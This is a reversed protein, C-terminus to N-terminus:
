RVEFDVSRSDGAENVVTLRHSGSSPAISMQHHEVTEGIYEEDLHWFHRLMKKRSAVKCVIQQTEGGFGKPLVVQQGSEPYLFEIDRGDSEMCDARYPPLPKYGVNHRQYYYEMAPTLVFWSKTVQNAVPECESNVQWREDPSLHVVRCFRCKGSNVCERPLMMTDRELCADTARWGSHRCVVVEDMDEYPKRFWETQPLSSFVEFMVPGAYGIGTMDARGEGTSNGVWVGVAYDRTVGIAWADRNGFSTGTKWAVKKMSSFQQWDAEEEPRNLGTMAEFAYWIGAASPKGRLKNAEVNEGQLIRLPHVDDESYKNEKGYEILRRAMSAYMGTMDWLTGEAGGLIISAGYYDENKRLTTMGVARLNDMFRVVHHQSLMRVLPVNLSQMIARDAGVAGSYTKSYNKPTYGNIELPTDAIISRPNLEGDTMMAAYLIPKLVSGTSREAQIMDVMYCDAQSDRTNGVYAVVNGTSVEAVIVAINHIHNSRNQWSHYEVISQVRRQLEVDITTRYKAEGYRKQLYDCLHPADRAISHIEEPLPEEISMEYTTRDIEGTEYLRKLLRDRKAKLRERNRSVHILAPSNPLIALTASESWTLDKIPVGFFKLAAAELGVINGGMPAESAYQRLIERKSYRMEIGLAVYAEYMKQWITREKNGLAIRALQMTITSAGQVNEGGQVNSRMARVIAVPDIGIHYWFRRDEFELLCRIYKEPVTDPAALRLQGGKAIRASLLTGDSAYVAISRPRDLLPNPVSLYAGGLFLVVVSAIVITKKKHRGWLASASAEITKRIDSLSM